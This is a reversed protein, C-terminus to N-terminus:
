SSSIFGRRRCVCVCVCVCMRTCVGPCVKLSQVAAPIQRAMNMLLEDGAVSSPRCRLRRRFDLAANRALTFLWPEFTIPERLRSIQRCLKIMVMQVVDEVMDPQDLMPRVFAALRNRYRMILESQAAMDGDKARRVIILLGEREAETPRPYCARRGGGM